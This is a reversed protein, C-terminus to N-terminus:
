WGGDIPDATYAGPGGRTRRLALGLLDTRSGCRRLAKFGNRWHKRRRSHRWMALRRQGGDSGDSVERLEARTSHQEGVVGDVSTVRQGAGEGVLV